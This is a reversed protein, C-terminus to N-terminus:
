SHTSRACFSPASNFSNLYKIIMCSILAENAFYYFNVANEHTELFTGAIFKFQLFFVRSIFHALFTLSKCKKDRRSLGSSFDQLGGACLCSIFGIIIDSFIDEHIYRNKNQGYTFLPICSERSRNLVLRANISAQYVLEYLLCVSVRNRM